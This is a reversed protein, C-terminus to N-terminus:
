WVECKEVPNMPSNAPCDWASAFDPSNSLTGRVRVDPPSHVGIRVRNAVSQPTDTYCWLQAFSIFFLQEASYDTLGVLRQEAGNREVWRRYGLLGQRLGGNDAINEANTLDGNVNIEGDPGTVTYNSYFNSVCATRERFRSRADETWWVKLNGERDYNSGRDDFGHTLEHGMIMGIGGYNLAKLNRGDFFPNQMIGAPFVMENSSAVYYANVTPPSMFWRSTDVPKFIANLARRNAWMRFNQVNELYAGNSQVDEYFDQLETVNVVYNPYGIKELVADAKEAAVQRTADDMWELSPLEDKFASRIDQIMEEAITRSEGAFAANVFLNGLVFGYVADILGMCTRERQPESTVGSLARQYNFQADRYPKSLHSLLSRLRMWRIYQMVTTQSTNDLVEFMATFYSATPVLLDQLEFAGGMPDTPFLAAFYTDWDFVTAPPWMTYLEDKTLKRYTAVVDRLLARDITINALATEFEFIADVTAPINTVDDFNALTLVETIQTRYATILTDNDPQDYNRRDPLGLGSQSIWIINTKSDRDDPRVSVTFLPAADTAHVTALVRSLNARDSATWVDDSTEPIWFIEETLAGDKILDIGEADQASEAALCSRYLAAAKAFPDTTAPLPDAALEDVHGELLTRIIYQNRESLVAFQSWSSRDSPRRNENAWNGCAFEYFDECPDVDTNMSSFMSASAQVCDTSTCTDVSFVPANTEGTVISAANDSSAVRTVALAVIVAVAVVLTVTLAICWNRERHSRVLGKDSQYTGSLM